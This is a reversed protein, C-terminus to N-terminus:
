CKKFMKELFQLFCFLKKLRVYGSKESVEGGRGEEGRVM